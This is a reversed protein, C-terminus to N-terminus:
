AETVGYLQLIMNFMYSLLNKLNMGSFNKIGDGIGLMSRNPFTYILSSATKQWFDPDVDQKIVNLGKLITLIKLIYDEAEMILMAVYDRIIANRHHEQFIVHLTKKNQDDALISLSHEFCTMIGEATPNKRLIEYLNPHNFMNESNVDFDHLLYRLIDDKSRFHNYLSSANIGVSLAIDRVSTETYGKSAFLDIASYVIKQKTPIRIEINELVEIDM